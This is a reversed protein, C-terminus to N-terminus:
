RKNREEIFALLGNDITRASIDVNKKALDYLIKFFIDHVWKPSFGAQTCIWRFDFDDPDKFWLVAEAQTMPYEPLCVDYLAQDIVARYLIRNERDESSEYALQRFLGKTKLYASMKM